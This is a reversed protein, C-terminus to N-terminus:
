SGKAGKISALANLAAQVQGASANFALASSTQGNFTLTFSGATGNVTVTQVDPAGTGNLTLQEGPVTLRAGTGSPDGDLELSAGPNVVTGDPLLGASAFTFNVIAP